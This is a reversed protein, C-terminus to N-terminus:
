NSPWTHNAVSSALSMATASDYDSHIHHNFRGTFAFLRGQAAKKHSKELMPQTQTPTRATATVSNWHM